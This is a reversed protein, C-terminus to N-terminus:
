GGIGIVIDDDHDREGHAIEPAPFSGRVGSFRVMM